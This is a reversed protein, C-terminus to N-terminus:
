AAERQAAKARIWDSVESDLWGSAKPGLRLPKPFTGDKVQEYIVTRSLGTRKAVEPMRLVRPSEPATM